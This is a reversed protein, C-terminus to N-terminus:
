CQLWFLRECEERGEFLVCVEQVKTLKLVKAVKHSFSNVMYMFDNLPVYIYSLTVGRTLCLYLAIIAINM